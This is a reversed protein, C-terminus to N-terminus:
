DDIHEKELWKECKKNTEFECTRCKSEACNHNPMNCCNKSMFDTLEIGAIECFEKITMSELYEKNTM